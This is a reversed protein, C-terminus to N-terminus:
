LVHITCQVGGGEWTMLMGSKGGGGGGGRSLRVGVVVSCGSGLVYSVELEPTGGLQLPPRKSTPTTDM